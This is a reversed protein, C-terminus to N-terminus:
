ATSRVPQVAALKERSALALMGLYSMRPRSYSYMQHSVLMEEAMAPLTPSTVGLASPTVSVETSLRVSSLPAVSATVKTPSYSEAVPTM